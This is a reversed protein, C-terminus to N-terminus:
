HLHNAQFWQLGWANIAIGAATLSVVLWAPARAAGFSCALLALAIWDLAFRQGFQVWGDNYYLLAPVAIVVASALAAVELGSLRRRVFMLWLFPVSLLLSMGHPDPVLTGGELLPLRLLWGYLNHALFHPHFRGFREVLAKFEDGMLIYGYGADGPQGFRAWNYVGHILAAIAIPIGVALAPGIARRSWGALRSALSSTPGAGPATAPGASARALLWVAFLAALAVTPRTLVSLGFAVGTWVPRRAAAMWLGWCQLALASIQAHLWVNGMPAGYHLPSGLAFTLTTCALALRGASRTGEPTAAHVTTLLRHFAFIAFLATLVLVLVDPTNPGLAAVVPMLPLAPLPGFVIYARGDVIAMDGADHPHRFLHLQGHNFADALYLHHCWHSTRWLTGGTGILWIVLTAALILWPTLDHRGRAASSTGRIRPRSAPRPAIAVEREDTRFLSPTSSPARVRSM